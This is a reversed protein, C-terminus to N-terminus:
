VNDGGIKKICVVDTHTFEKKMERAWGKRGQIELETCGNQVATDEIDGLLHKWNKMERGGLFNIVMVRKRPYTDVRTISAAHMENSDDVAVWLQWAGRLLMRKVDEMLYGDQLAVAPELYGSAKDWVSDVASPPVYLSDM